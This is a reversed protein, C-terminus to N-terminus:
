ESPKQFRFNIDDEIAPNLNSKIHEHTEKNIKGENLQKDLQATMQNKLFNILSQKSIGQIKAIEAMTKGAKISNTYEQETINLFSYLSNYNPTYEFVTNHNQNSLSQARVGDTTSITLSFLLIFAAIKNLM